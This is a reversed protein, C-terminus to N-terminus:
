IGAVEWTGAPGVEAFGSAPYIRPDVQDVKKVEEGEKPEPGNRRSSLDRTKLVEVVLSSRRTREMGIQRDEQGGKIGEADESM